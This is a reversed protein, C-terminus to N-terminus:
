LKSILRYIAAALFLVAASLILVTIDDVRTGGIQRCSKSPAARRTRVFTGYEYSTFALFNLGAILKIVYSRRAIRHTTCIPAM